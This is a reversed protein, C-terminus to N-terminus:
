GRRPPASTPPGYAVDIEQGEKLPLAAWCKSASGDVWMQVRKESGDRHPGLRGVGFDVGWIAFLQGLTADAQGENHVKGDDSHTHLAAMAEHGRAPDIGIESPVAIPAGDVWVRLHMHEHNESSPSGMTAVGAAVRRDELGPWHPGFPGRVPVPPEGRLLGLTLLLALGGATIVLARKARM